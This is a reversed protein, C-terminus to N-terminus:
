PKRESARGQHGRYPCTTRSKPDGFFKWTRRCKRCALRHPGLRKEHINPKINM